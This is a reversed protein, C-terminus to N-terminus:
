VRIPLIVMPIGQHYLRKQVAFITYNHLLRTTFNEKEFVLQGGFLVSHPYQERIKMVLQELEDVVDVGIACRSEAHYGHHRLYNVYRHGESEIHERLNDVETSGKFNGVDVVGVQVFIYNKFSGEFLRMVNLLTHIGLGNFGNVLLVATKAKPDCDPVSPGADGAHQKESVATATVMLDNLRGLQRETWRYHRRVGLAISVLLGTVLLTLWGGDHFKLISM